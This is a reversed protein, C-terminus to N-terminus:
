KIKYVSLVQYTSDQLNLICDMGKGNALKYHVFSSRPQYPELKGYKAELQSYTVRKACGVFCLVLLLAIISYRM